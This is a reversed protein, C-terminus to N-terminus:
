PMSSLSWRGNVGDSYAPSCSFWARFKSPWDGGSAAEFGVIVLEVIKVHAPFERLPLEFALRPNQNWRQAPIAGEPTFAADFQM